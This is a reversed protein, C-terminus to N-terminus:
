DQKEFRYGVGYETILYKPANPDREIKQRLKWIYVHIYQLRNSSAGGWDNELIQTYTCVKGNHLYLFELLAFETATLRVPNGEVRAQRQRIDIVLYGDHYHYAWKAPSSATARRLVSQVRALLEEKEFPKKVFDDAGMELARVTVDTQSLASLMIVPIDTLTRVHMLVELGDMEPMMIDLLVLDPQFRYLERLGEQGSNEAVIVYGSMKLIGSVIECIFPDDDILLIKTNEM